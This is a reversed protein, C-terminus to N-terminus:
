NEEDELAAKFATGGFMDQWMAFLLATAGDAAMAPFPGMVVGSVVRSSILCGMRRAPMARVLPPGRAAATEFAPPRPQM